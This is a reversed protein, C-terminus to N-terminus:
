SRCQTLDEHPTLDPNAIKLRVREPQVVLPKRRAPLPWEFLWGLSLRRVLVAVAMPGAIGVAVGMAAHMWVHEVGLAYRLAARTAAAAITHMLYIPLSFIGIRMLWGFNGSFHMAFALTISAAIGVLAPILAYPSTKPWSGFAAMAAVLMFGTLAIAVSMLPRRSWSIMLLKSAGMLGMATYPLYYLLNSFNGSASFGFLTHQGFGIFSMILIALNPVKAYKLAGLIVFHFFLAHLFWFQSYPEVPLNRFVEAVTVHENTFASFRENLFAQILSWLVYPYAIIALKGALYTGLGKKLSYDIFLGSLFFFLPMHFSYLFSDIFQFAAAPTQLGAKTLGQLVHGIVVLFIGLGKATDIWSVRLSVM